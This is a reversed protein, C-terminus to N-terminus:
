RFPLWDRRKPLLLQYRKLLIHEGRLKAKLHAYALAVPYGFGKVLSANAYVTSLAGEVDEDKVMSVTLVARGTHLYAVVRGKLREEDEVLVYQGKRLIGDLVVSDPLQQSLLALSSDKAVGVIGREAEVGLISGDVAVFSAEGEMRGELLKKALEVEKLLTRKRVEAEWERPTPAPVEQVSPGDEHVVSLRGERYAVVVYRALLYGFSGFSYSAFGSDVAGLAPDGGEVLEVKLEGRLRAREARLLSLPDDM